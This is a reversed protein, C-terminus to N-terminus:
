RVDDEQSKQLISRSQLRNPEVELPLPPRLNHHWGDTETSVQEFEARQEARVRRTARGSHRTSALLRLHWRFGTAREVPASGTPVYPRTAGCSSPTNGARFAFPLPGEGGERLRRASVGGALLMRDPSRRRAERFAVILVSVASVPRFLANSRCILSQARWECSILVPCFSLAWFSFPPCIRDSTM